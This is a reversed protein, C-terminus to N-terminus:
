ISRPQSDKSVVFDLQALIRKAIGGFEGLRKNTKYINQSNTIITLSSDSVNWVDMILFM